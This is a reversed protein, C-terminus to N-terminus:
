NVFSQLNIVMVTVDDINGRSSTIDVLKKCSEVLNKSGSIVDVAEQEGVKDWLGDSAIILFQCDSTLPLKLIEPESIVYEKLYFDGFARSVALTGNVRWLGNRCHLYGGSNHIRAREDERSSLRHDNTLAAAVGNRSLVVRCDGANAVHMEGDKVLVSAACAGGGVGQSLFQDDTVTYGRRIAAEIQNGQMKRGDLNSIDNLINKGLNEAVFDAAARGGHGDTVVFFAQKPNGSIDLMIGHGDEMVERKGKKSALSFGRGEVQYENRELKRGIKAFDLSQCEAPGPLILQAPRKRSMMSPKEKKEPSIIPQKEQLNNHDNNSFAAEPPQRKSNKTFLLLKTSNLSGQFFSSIWPHSTLGM